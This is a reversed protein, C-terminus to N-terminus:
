HWCPNGSTQVDSVDLIYDRGDTSTMIKWLFLLIKCDDRTFHQCKVLFYRHKVKFVKLFFRCWSQESKLFIDSFFNFSNWPHSEGYGVIHKWNDQKVCDLNLNYKSWDRIVWSQKKKIKIIGRCAFHTPLYCIMFEFFSFAM